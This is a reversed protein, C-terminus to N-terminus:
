RFPQGPRLNHVTVGSMGRAALEERLQAPTGALIPYTGYHMPVIDSVGLYQAAMAAGRPDMTYHGGIPLFALQPRYREGILGMDSFVDTDGAFLFRFGNEVEVIWGTPEGFYVPEGEERLEGSSHDARVMSFRVGRHEVTGGKNMGIVGSPGHPLRRGVYLSMEHIAPWFPRFRAAVQLAEGTHDSHGHTVILVDCRELTEFTRASLPNGFWPDFVINVGGPTEVEFCAHGHWTIGLGGVGM